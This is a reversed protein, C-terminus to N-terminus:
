NSKGHCIMMFYSCAWKYNFWGFVVEFDTLSQRNPVNKKMEMRFWGQLALILWLQFMPLTVWMGNFVKVEHIMMYLIVSCIVVNYISDFLQDSSNAFIQIAKKELDEYTKIKFKADMKLLMPSRAEFDITENTSWNWGLFSFRIKEDKLVKVYWSVQEDDDYGYYLDVKFTTNGIQWTGNLREMIQKAEFDQLFDIEDLASNMIKQCQQIRTKEAKYEYYSYLSSISKQTGMGITILSPLIERCVLMAILFLKIFDKMM